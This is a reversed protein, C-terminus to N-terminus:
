AYSYSSNWLDFMYECNYIFGREDSAIRQNERAMQAQNVLLGNMMINHHDNLVGRIREHMAQIAPSTKGRYWIAVGLKVLFGEYPVSVIGTAPYLALVLTPHSQNGDMKQGPYPVGKRPDRWVPPLSGADDPKRVLGQAVLYDTLAPIMNEPSYLPYSM